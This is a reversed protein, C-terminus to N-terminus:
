PSWTDRQRTGWTEIKLGPFQGQESFVTDV